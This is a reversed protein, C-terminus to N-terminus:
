ILIQRFLGHCAVLTAKLRSLALMFNYLKGCAKKLAPKKRPAQDGGESTIRGNTSLNKVARCDIDVM